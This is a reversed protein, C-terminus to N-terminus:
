FAERVERWAEIMAVVNEWPTDAFVADVPALRDVYQDLLGELGDAREGRMLTTRALLGHSLANMASRQKGEPTVPGRSLAGNARSSLTRRLSSM